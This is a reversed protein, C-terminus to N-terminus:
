IYFTSVQIQVQRIGSFTTIIDSKLTTLGAESTEENRLDPPITLDFSLDRGGAEGSLRVDHCAYAPFLHELEENLFNRIKVTLPDELDVPDIHITPTFGMEEQLVSILEAAIDHSKLLSLKRDVEVHFSVIKQEGYSNVIVDHVNIVDRNQRIISLMTALFLPDPKTGLLTDTARKLIKVALWGIVVAVVAGMLSDVFRVGYHSLIMAVLVLLSSIADSHHHWADAKIADSDIRRGLWLGFHALLEKVLISFIVVGIILPSLEIVPSDNFRLFSSRLIEVGAVLLLVAVVLATIAEVRGHGFPHERDPKRDAVSFGVLIVVSTACDSFSHIADAVLAVSGSIVGFALKLGGLMLNVIISIWGELKGVCSREPRPHSAGDSPKRKGLCYRTLVSNYLNMHHSGGKTL